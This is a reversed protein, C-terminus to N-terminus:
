HFIYAAGAYSHGGETHYSAGVLIISGSIAVSSGFVDGEAGDSANLEQTQSWGGDSETFVYVAGKDSESYQGPAGVLITSGAIAVSSGFGEGEAGDSATLEQTESWSGDTETFVFAAGQWSNGDM